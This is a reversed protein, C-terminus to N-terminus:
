ASVNMNSIVKQVNVYAYSTTLILSTYTIVMHANNVNCRHLQMVANVAKLALFVRTIIIRM